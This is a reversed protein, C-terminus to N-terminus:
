CPRGFLQVWVYSKRHAQLVQTQSNLREALEALSQPDNTAVEDHGTYAAGFGVEAVGRRKLNRWHGESKVWGVLVADVSQYGKALNEAILCFNYGGASVRKTLTSGHPGFHDFHGTRSLLCAYDQAVKDLISNPMVTGVDQRKRIGNLQRLHTQRMKDMNDPVICQLEVAGALNALCCLLLTAATFKRWSRTGM